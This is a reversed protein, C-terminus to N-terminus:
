AGSMGRSLVQGNREDNAKLFWQSTKHMDDCTIGLNTQIVLQIYYHQM